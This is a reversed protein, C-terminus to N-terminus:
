EASREARKSVVGYSRLFDDLAAKATVGLQRIHAAANEHRGVVIKLQGIVIPCWAPFNYKQADSVFFGSIRLDQMDLNLVREEVSRLERLASSIYTGHSAITTELIRLHESAVPSQSATRRADAFDYKRLQSFVPETEAVATAIEALLEKARAVTPELQNRVAAIKAADDARRSSIAAQVRDAVTTTPAITTM